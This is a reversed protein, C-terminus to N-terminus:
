LAWRHYFDIYINEPTQNFNDGITPLTINAAAPKVWHWPWRFCTASIALKARSRRLLTCWICFGFHGFPSLTFSLTPMLVPLWTKFDADTCEILYWFRYWYMCHLRLTSILLHLLTEVDIDTCAIMDWRRNWYMCDLRLTSILVHLWTKVDVDTCTILDWRRYWYMYDLRLTSM